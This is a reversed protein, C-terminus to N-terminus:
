CHMCQIQDIEIRILHTLILLVNTSCTSVGICCTNVMDLRILVGHVYRKCDACLDMYIIFQLM